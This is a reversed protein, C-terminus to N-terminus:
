FRGAEVHNLAATGESPLNEEVKLAKESASHDAVIDVDTDALVVSQVLFSGFVVAGIICSAVGGRGRIKRLSYKYQKEENKRKFM